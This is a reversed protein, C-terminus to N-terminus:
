DSVVRLFRTPGPSLRQTDTVGNNAAANVDDQNTKSKQQSLSDETVLTVQFRPLTDQNVPAVAAYSMDEKKMNDDGTPQVVVFSDPSLHVLLMRELELRQISGLLIKSDSFYLLLLIELKM